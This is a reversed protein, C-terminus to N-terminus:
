GKDQQENDFRKLFDSFVDSKGKYYLARDTVGLSRYVDFFHDRWEEITKKSIVLRDNDIFCELM